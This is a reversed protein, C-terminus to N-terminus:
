LSVLGTARAEENLSDGQIFGAKMISPATALLPTLLLKPLTNLLSKVEFFLIGM